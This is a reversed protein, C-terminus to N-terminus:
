FRKKLVGELENDIFNKFKPSIKTLLRLDHASPYETPKPTDTNKLLSHLYSHFPSEHPATIIPNLIETIKSAAENGSVYALQLAYMLRTSLGTNLILINRPPGEGVREIESILNKFEQEVEEETVGLRRFALIGRSTALVMRTQYILAKSFVRIDRGLLAEGTENFKLIHGAYERKKETTLEPNLMLQAAYWKATRISGISTPAFTDAYGYLNKKALEFDFNELFSQYPIGSFIVERRFENTPALTNLNALDIVFYARILPPNKEDAIADKLITVGRKQKELDRTLFLDTALKGTAELKKSHTEIDKLAQEFLPIAQEWQGSNHLEKGQQILKEAKDQKVTLTQQYFYWGGIGVLLAILLIFIKKGNM